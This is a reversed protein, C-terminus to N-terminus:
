DLYIISLESLNTHNSSNAHILVLNDLCTKTSAEASAATHRVRLDWPLLFSNNNFLKAPTKYAGRTRASSSLSTHLLLCSTSLWPSRRPLPPTLSVGGVRRLKGSVRFAPESNRLNCEPRYPLLVVHLGLYAESARLLHLYRSKSLSHTHLDRWTRFNALHFDTKSICVDKQEHYWAQMTKPM